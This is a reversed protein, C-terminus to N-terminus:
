WEAGGWGIGLLPMKVGLRMSGSFFERVGKVPKSFTHMGSGWGARLLGETWGLVRARNRAQRRGGM